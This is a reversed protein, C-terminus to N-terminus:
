LHDFTHLACKKNQMYSEIITMYANGKNIEVYITYEPEKYDVLHEAM